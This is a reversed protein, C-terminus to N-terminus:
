MGGCQDAYIGGILGAILSMTHLAFEPDMYRLNYKALSFAGPARPTPALHYAHRPLRPATGLATSRQSFVRRNGQIRALADRVLGTARCIKLDGRKEDLSKATLVIVRLGASSLYVLKELNLLVRRDEARIFNLISDQADRASLTDLRGSINIILMDQVRRAEMNM